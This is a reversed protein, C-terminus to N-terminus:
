SMSIQPLKDAFQKDINIQKQKFRHGLINLTTRIGDHIDIMKKGGGQDMHSYSKVSQVLQAVRSSAEKIEEVLLEVSLRNDFWNLVPTLKEEELLIESIKDLDEENFDFETLSEAINESNQVDHDEMWDTLEDMRDERELLSMDKPAARHQDMKKFMVNNIDDTQTENINLQMIAKFSEPTESLKQHLIDASRVKASAPNYLEHALGASIKGLAKLKEDQFQTSSVDRIRDSMVAVFAQTMKYSVNVMEVFHKKHLRLITLNEIVKATASANKIRSFPLNGTINGNGLINIPRRGEPTELYIDVQGQIFINLEDISDGPQFLFSGAPHHTITSKDLLWDIASPKVGELNPLNYIFDKIASDSLM